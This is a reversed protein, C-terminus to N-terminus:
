GHREQAPNFSAAAGDAGEHDKRKEMLIRLGWTDIYEETISFSIILLIFSVHTKVFLM